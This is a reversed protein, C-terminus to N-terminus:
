AYFSVTNRDERSLKGYPNYLSIAAVVNRVVPWSESRKALEDPTPSAAYRTVREVVQVPSVRVMNLKDIM